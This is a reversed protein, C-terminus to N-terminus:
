WSRGPKTRALEDHDHALSRPSRGGDATGGGIPAAAIRHLEVAIEAPRTLLALHDAEVKITPWGRREAEAAAGEYAGSLRLYGCPVSSWRDTAPAREDFYALPVTEPLDAVFRSRLMPDPLLRELVAPPFWRDWRPLMGDHALGRLQEAVAAPAAELFSAGDHPLVADVFVAATRGIVSMADVIAPVLSGAGSHAVLVVAEDPAVAGIEEVVRRSLARYYSPQASALVDGLSPVIVRLGRGRLAEACPRWTFSGVVASHILVFTM